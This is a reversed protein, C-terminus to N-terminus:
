WEPMINKRFRKAEYRFEVVEAWIRLLPNSPSSLIGSASEGGKFLVKLCMRKLQCLRVGHSSAPLPITTAANPGGLRLLVSRQSRRSRIMKQHIRPIDISSNLEMNEGTPASVTLLPNLNFNIDRLLPPTHIGLM